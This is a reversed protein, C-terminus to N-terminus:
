AATGYWIVKICNILLLGMALVNCFIYKRFQNTQGECKQKCRKNYIPKTAQAHLSITGIM